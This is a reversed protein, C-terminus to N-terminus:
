RRRATSTAKPLSAGRITSSPVLGSSICPSHSFPAYGSSRCSILCRFSSSDRHPAQQFKAEPCRTSPSARPNELVPSRQSKLGSFMSRLILLLMPDMSYELRHLQLRPLSFPIKPLFVRNATVCLSRM